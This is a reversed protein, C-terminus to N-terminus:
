WRRSQAAKKRARFLFILGIIVLVAIVGGITHWTVWDADELATGDTSAGAAATVTFSGSLGGISVSYSGVEERAV